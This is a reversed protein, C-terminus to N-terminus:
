SVRAGGGYLGGHNRLVAAKETEVWEGYASERYTKRM